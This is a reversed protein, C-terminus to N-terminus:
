ARIVPVSVANGMQKNSESESSHLVFNDPFGQLRAFERKTLARYNGKRVIEDVFIKKIEDSGDGDIGHLAIFDKSGSATITGFAHCHPMFIRYIPAGRSAGELYDSARIGSSIRTNAFEIRSEVRADSAADERRRLRYGNTADYWVRELI